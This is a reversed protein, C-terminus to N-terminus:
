GRRKAKPKKAATLPTPCEVSFYGGPVGLAKCLKELVDYSPNDRAGSELQSVYQKTKGILEGLQDGSLGLEERREKLRERPFRM